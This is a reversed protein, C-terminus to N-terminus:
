AFGSIAADVAAAADESAGNQFRGIVLETDAPCRNDFTERGSVERGDIWMAHTNGMGKRVKEIARDYELHMEESPASLTAYTIKFTDEQAMFVETKSHPFIM